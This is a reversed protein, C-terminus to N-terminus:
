PWKSGPAKGNQGSRTKGHDESVGLCARPTSKPGWMCIAELGEPTDHAKKGEARWM